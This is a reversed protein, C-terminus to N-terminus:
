RPLRVLHKNLGLERDGLGLAMGVLQPLHLVPMKLPEPAQKDALHQYSDLTLQCLTCPTVMVDANKGRAGSVCSGVMSTTTPKAVLM